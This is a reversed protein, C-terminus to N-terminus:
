RPTYMPPFEEVIEQAVSAPIRVGSDQHFIARSRSGDTPNTAQSSSVFLTESGGNNFNAPSENGSATGTLHSASHTEGYRNPTFTQHGQFPDNNSVYPSPYAIGGKTRAQHSPNSGSASTYSLASQTMNSTSATPTSNVVLRGSHLSPGHAASHPPDDAYPTIGGPYPGTPDLSLREQQSRRRKRYWWLAGLLLLLVLVGVIAGVIAGVPTSKGTSAAGVNSDLNGSSGSSVPDSGSVTGTGTGTGASAGGGQSSPLTSTPSANPLTYTDVSIVPAVSTSTSSSSARSASSAGGGTPARLNTGGSVFFGDVVLPTGGGQYTLILTHAGSALNSLTLVHRNYATGEGGPITFTRAPAGDLSFTAQSPDHSLQEPFMSKLTVGNGASLLPMAATPTGNSYEGIFRFTATDGQTVTSYAVEALTGWGSSYVIDADDRTTLMVENQVTVTPRYQIYDFWFSRGSRSKVRLGATYRGAPINQFNCFEWNNETHPFFGTKAGASVSGNLLCDWDAGAENGAEDLNIDNTGMIIAANGPGVLHANAM